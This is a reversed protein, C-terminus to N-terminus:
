KGDEEKEEGKKEGWTWVEWIHDKILDGYGRGEDLAKQEERLRREKWGGKENGMWFRDLVSRDQEKQAKLREMEERGVGEEQMRAERAARVKAQIERAKDSPLDGSGIFSPKPSHTSSRSVRDEIRELISRGTRERTIHNASACFAGTLLVTLHDLKRPPLAILVPAAVLFSIATYNKFRQFDAERNPITTAGPQQTQPQPQPTDTSM